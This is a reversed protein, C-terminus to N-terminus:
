SCVQTMRWSVITVIFHYSLRTCTILVQAVNYKGMYVAVSSVDFQWCYAM